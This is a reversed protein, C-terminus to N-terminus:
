AKQHHKLIELKQSVNCDLPTYQHWQAIHQWQCNHPLTNVRPLQAKKANQPAWEVIILPTNRSKKTMNCCEVARAVPSSGGALHGGDRSCWSALLCQLSQCDWSKDNMAFLNSCGWKIFGAVVGAGEILGM